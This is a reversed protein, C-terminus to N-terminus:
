PPQTAYRAAVSRLHRDLASVGGERYVKVFRGRYTALLSTGDVAVDYVRWAGQGGQGGEPRYVLRFVVRRSSARGRRDITRTWVTARECDLAAREIELRQTRPDQLRRRYRSRLMLRLAAGWRARTDADVQDWAVRLSWRAFAGVDVSDDIIRDLEHQLLSKGRPGPLVDGYASALEQFRQMVTRRAGAVDSACVPGVDVDVDVAAAGDTADRADLLAGTGGADRLDAAPAAARAAGAGWALAGALSLALAHTVQVTRKAERPQEEPQFWQSGLRGLQLSALPGPDVGPARGGGAM